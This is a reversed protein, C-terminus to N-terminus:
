SKVLIKKNLLNKYDFDKGIMIDYCVYISYIFVLINAFSFLFLLIDFSGVWPANTNQVRSLLLFQNIFTIVSLAAFIKFLRNDKTTIYAALCLPVAIIQYREHMNMTLIFICQILFFSMLWLNKNKGYIMVFALCLLTVALFIYSLTNVPLFGFVKTSDPKWNLGLLGYLNFTNLCAYPYSGAGGAYLKVPLNFGSNLMFPLFIGVAVLFSSSIAQVIKKSDAKTLLAYLVIPAFFLVQFKTLAGLTYIITAIVPMDKDFFYFSALIFFILVSDIQGWFSSNFLITPNILWIMAMLSSFIMNKKECLKYILIGCIMDFVIPIIKLLIMLYPAYNSFEKIYKYLVGIISLPFLYVPPYDLPYSSPFKHNYITFLGDQSIGKAWELFWYTDFKNEVFGAICLRLIFSFTFFTFLFVLIQKKSIRELSM